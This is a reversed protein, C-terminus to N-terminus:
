VTVPELFCQNSDILGQAECDKVKPQLYHDKNFKEARSGKRYKRNEGEILQTSIQYHVLM